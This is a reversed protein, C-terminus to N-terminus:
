ISNISILASSASIQGFIVSCIGGSGSASSYL